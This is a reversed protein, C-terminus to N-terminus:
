LNVKSVHYNYSRQDTTLSGGVPKKFPCVGHKVLIHLILGFGNEMGYFQKISKLHIHAKFHGHTMFVRNHNQTPCKSTTYRKRSVTEKGTGLIMHGQM